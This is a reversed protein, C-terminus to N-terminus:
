VGFKDRLLSVLDGVSEAALTEGPHVGGPISRDTAAFEAKLREALGCRIIAPFGFTGQFTHDQQVYRESRVALEAVVATVTQEITVPTVSQDM